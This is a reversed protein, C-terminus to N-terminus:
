RVRRRRGLGMKDKLAAWEAHSLTGNGDTDAAKFAERSFGPLAANIEDYSLEGDKDADMVQFRTQGDTSMRGRPNMGQGRGGPMQAFEQHSVKGDGDRDTIRFGEEGAQPVAALFEAKSLYGDGDRDASSFFTGQGAGAPAAQGTVATLCILVAGMLGVLLAKM